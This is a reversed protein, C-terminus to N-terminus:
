QFPRKSRGRCRPVMRVTITHLLLISPLFLNILDSKFLGTTQTRDLQCRLISLSKGSVYTSEYRKGRRRFLPTGCCDIAPNNPNTAAIDPYCRFCLPCCPIRYNLESEVGIIKEFLKESPPLLADEPLLDRLLVLLEDFQRKNVRRGSEKWRLLNTM